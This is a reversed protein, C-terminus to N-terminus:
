RGALAPERETEESGVTAVKAEEAPLGEARKTAYVDKYTQGTMERIEFMVEDIIQRLVLHDDARDAYRAPDIPRGFRVQVRKFPKPV